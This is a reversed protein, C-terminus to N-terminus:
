ISIEMNHSPVFGHHMSFSSQTQNPSFQVSSVCPWMLTKYFPFVWLTGYESSTYRIKTCKLVIYSSLLLHFWFECFAKFPKRGVYQGWVWLPQSFSWLQVLVVLAMIKEHGWPKSRWMRWMQARTDSKWQPFQQRGWWFQRKLVWTILCPLLVSWFNIEFKMYINWIEIWPPMVILQTGIKHLLKIRSMIVDTGYEQCQRIKSM